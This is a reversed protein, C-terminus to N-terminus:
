EEEVKGQEGKESLWKRTAVRICDSVYDEEYFMPVYIDFGDEEEVIKVNRALIGRYQVMKKYKENDIKKVEAVISFRPSTIATKIEEAILEALRLNEIYTEDM